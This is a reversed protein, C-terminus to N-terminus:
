YLIVNCYNYDFTSGVYVHIGYYVNSLKLISTNNMKFITLIFHIIQQFISCHFIFTCIIKCYSYEITFRDYINSCKYM